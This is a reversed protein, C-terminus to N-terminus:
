VQWHLLALGSSWATFDALDDEVRGRGVDEGRCRAIMENTEPVDLVALVRRDRQLTM